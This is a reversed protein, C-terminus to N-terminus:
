DSGSRWRSSRCLASTGSRISSPNLWHSSHSLNWAYSVTRRFARPVFHRLITKADELRGEALNIKGLLRATDAPPWAGVLPGEVEIWQVALGPGVYDAPLDNWVTPLGYPSIRISENAKMQETFEVVTPDNAVDFAGVLRSILPQYGYNGVYVLVTMGNGNHEANASIRFRYRGPVAIGTEGITMPVNALRFVIENNQM